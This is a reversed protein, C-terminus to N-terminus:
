KRIIKTNIIAFQHKKQYVLSGKKDKLQILKSIIKETYLDSKIIKERNQQYQTLKKDDIVLILDGNRVLFQHILDRKHDENTQESVEGKMILQSKGDFIYNHSLTIYRGYNTVNSPLIPLIQTKEEEFFKRFLKLKGDESITCLFDNYYGIGVIKKEHIKSKQIIQQSDYDFLSVHGTEYGIILGKPTLCASTISSFSEVRKKINFHHDLIIIQGNIMGVVITDQDIIELSIPHTPLQTVKEIVRLNINYRSIEKSMSISFLYNDFVKMGTIHSSHIFLARKLKFKKLSWFSLLGFQHGLILFNDSFVCSYVPIGEFRVMKYFLDHTNKDAFEDITKKASRITRFIKSDRMFLHKIKSMDKVDYVTTLGQTNTTVLYRGETFFNEMEPVRRRRGKVLQNDKLDWKTLIREMGASIIHEDTQAIQIISSIHAHKSGLLTYSSLDWLKITTDKAGTLLIDHYKDWCVATIASDHAYITAYEIDFDKSWICIRGDAGASIIKDKIRTISSVTKNHGSQHFPIESVSNTM